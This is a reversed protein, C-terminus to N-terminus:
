REFSHAFQLAENLANVRDSTGQFIAAPIRAHSIIDDYIPGGLDVNLGMGALYQLRLNRDRNLQANALWGRLDEAQVTYTSLLQMPSGFGVETLSRKVRAYAPSDLKEQLANLNISMKEVTGLMVLDYGRGDQDLNGWISGNPFAEFFTAIESKVTEINSEYLPVWQTVLGGPKLHRKCLEFYETSYLPAIGKVWPHIPDSTVIDYKEPSTLVYHRADDYVIHTRPDQIVHHNEEGFVQATHPPILPEIECITIHLVEPHVVFTGATVGAGCGVVLINQPNPHLLAPLHGLLRQLRMDQPEASAEVKGSVHFYARTGDWKSYAVSSNMGEGVYVLDWRGTTTPLRRGFGILKWPIPPVTWILLITAIWGTAAYWIAPKDQRKSSSIALTAAIMSLGILVRESNQSGLQPIGLLSFGISGFIAGITNSAYVEGVLRGPDQGKRAVSALALPFSAGWLVAAPLIGVVSRWIDNQFGQWPTVQKYLNGPWYPLKDAVQYAAWAITLALLLQCGALWFRPDKARRALYSGGGSGLGLGTLFVGLIISFTYVTPGLMLSLLRTWVVEAGLACLGSIGIAIYIATSGPAREASSEIPPAPYPASRSLLVSVGAVVVNIAVAVMSATAMDYVRLLYFGALGCGLVGGAINGGYFFGWWSAANPTSEIWRSMAPLTAGMFMTPPLLCVACIIGRWLIGAMGAGLGTLYLKQIVPLGVLVLVGFLGTGLELLGYVLLPHHRASIRRPLYLSGLCMGGMFTGLLVALSVGSSGIVLQLLQLWVIEYMLAACGSGAFLCLLLLLFRPM